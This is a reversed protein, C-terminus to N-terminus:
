LKSKNLVHQVAIPLQCSKLQCSADRSLQAEQKDAPHSKNHYTLTDFKFDRPEGTVSSHIATCHLWEITHM